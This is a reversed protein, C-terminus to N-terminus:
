NKEFALVRINITSVTSAAGFNSIVIHVTEQNTDPNKRVFCRQPILGSGNGVIAKTTSDPLTSSQSYAKVEPFLACDLIYNNIITKDEIAYQAGNYDISIADQKKFTYLLSKGNGLFAKNGLSTRSVNYHLIVFPHQRLFNIKGAMTKLSDNNNVKSTDINTAVQACIINQGWPSSTSLSLPDNGVLQKLYKDHTNVTSTIASINNNIQTIDGTHDQLTEHIQLLDDQVDTFHDTISPLKTNYIDNVATTLNNINTNASSFSSNVATTLNNIKTNVNSFSSGVETSSAKTDLSTKLDRLYNQVTTTSNNNIKYVINSAQGGIEYTSISSNSVKQLVKTILQKNAM